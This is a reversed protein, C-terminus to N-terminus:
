KIKTTKVFYINRCFDSYVNGNGLDAGYRFHMRITDPHIRCGFLQATCGQIPYCNFVSAFTDQGLRNKGEYYPPYQGNGYYFNQGTKYRPVSMNTISIENKSLSASTYGPTPYISILMTDAFNRMSRCSTCYGVYTNESPPFCNRTNIPDTKIPSICKCYCSDKTATRVPVKVQSAENCMLYNCANQAPQQQDNGCSMIMGFGLMLVISNFFSNM